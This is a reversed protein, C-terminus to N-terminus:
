FSPCPIPRRKPRKQREWEQNFLYVISIEHGGATRTVLLNSITADFSYGISFNEIKYGFMFILADRSFVRLEDGVKYFPLGRFWLGFMFPVKYWYGGLDLQYHNDQSKFLFSANVSESLTRILRGSRIIRTGGYVSYKRGIKYQQDSYLSLNPQTLHDISFGFWHDKSYTLFSTGFDFALVRDNPIRQTSSGGLTGSPVELASIDVSRQSYAFYVGPRAKWKRNINFDFSYQFGANTIGLHGEGARDRLLILGIGSRFKYFYHDFSVAMTTFAKPLAPFQNRYNVNLRSGKTTGAFSPGLYLPITYYQSFQPDQAELFQVAVTFILILFILRKM